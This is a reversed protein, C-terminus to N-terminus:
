LWRLPLVPIAGTRSVPTATAPLTPYTSTEQFGIYNTVCDSNIGIQRAGGLISRWTVAGDTLIARWLSMGLTTLLQDSGDHYDAGDATWTGASFLVVHNTNTAQASSSWLLKDPNGTTAHASYLAFVANQAATTTVACIADYTAGGKDAEYHLTYRIEDQALSTTGPTAADPLMYEVAKVAFTPRVPPIAGGRWATTANFDIAPNGSVGDGNSIAIGTGAATITRLAWTNLATRALIGTGTLREIAQLDPPQALMALTQEIRHLGSSDRYELRQRESDWIVGHKAM